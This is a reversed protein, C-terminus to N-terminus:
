ISINQKRHSWPSRSRRRVPILRCISVYACLCVSPCVSLRARRAGPAVCDVDNSLLSTLTLSQRDTPLLRRLSCPISTHPGGWGVGIGVGGCGGGPAGASVTYLRLWNRAWSISCVKIAEFFLSVPNDERQLYGCGHCYLELNHGVCEFGGKGRGGLQYHCYKGNTWRHVTKHSKRTAAESTYYIIIIIVPPATASCQKLGM